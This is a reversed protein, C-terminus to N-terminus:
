RRILLVICHTIIQSYDNNHPQQAISANLTRLTYTKSFYLFTSISLYYYHKYDIKYGLKVLISIKFLKISLNQKCM